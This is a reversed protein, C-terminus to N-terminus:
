MTPVMEKFIECFNAKPMQCSMCGLYCVACVLKEVGLVELVNFFLFFFAPNWISLIRLSSFDANKSTVAALFHLLLTRFHEEEM